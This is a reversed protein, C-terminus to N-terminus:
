IEDFSNHIVCVNLKITFVKKYIYYDTETYRFLKEWLYLYNDPIKEDTM